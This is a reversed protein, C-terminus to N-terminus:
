KAFFQSRASFCNLSGFHEIAFNHADVKTGMPTRRAPSEGRLQRLPVGLGILSLAHLDDEHTRVPALFGEVVIKGFHWPLSQGKCVSLPLLGQGRLELHLPDRSEDNQARIAGDNRLVAAGGDGGIGLTLVERPFWLGEMLQDAISKHPLAFGRQVLAGHLAFDEPQVEGGVPARRAPAKGGFQRLPVLRDLFRQRIELNDKSGAVPVLPTEVLVESFHRPNGQGIRIPLALLGQACQAAHFPDGRQRDDVLIAADNGGVAPPDRLHVGFPLLERPIWLGDFIQGMLLVTHVVAWRQHHQHVPCVLLRPIRDCRSQLGNCLFVLLLGLGRTLVLDQKKRPAGGGRPDRRPESRQDLNIHRGFLMLM